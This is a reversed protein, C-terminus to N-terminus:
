PHPDNIKSGSKSHIKPTRFQKGPTRMVPLWQRRSEPTTSGPSSAQLKLLLLPQWSSRTLAQGFQSFHSRKGTKLGYKMEQSIPIFGIAWVFPHGKRLNGPSITSSKELAQLHQSMELGALQQHDGELKEREGVPFPRGYLIEFPSYSSSRLTHKCLSILTWLIILCRTGANDPHQGPSIRTMSSSPSAFKVLFNFTCPGFILLLLFATTPSALFVLDLCQNM